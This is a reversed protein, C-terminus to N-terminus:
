DLSLSNLPLDSDSVSIFVCLKVKANNICCCFFHKVKSSVQWLDKFLIFSPDSCQGLLVFQRSRLSSSMKKLTVDSLFVRSNRVKCLTFFDILIGKKKTIHSRLSSTSMEWRKQENKYVLCRITSNLWDFGLNSQFVEFIVRWNQRSFCLLFPWLERSNEYQTFLYVKRM